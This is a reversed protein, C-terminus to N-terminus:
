SESSNNSKNIRAIEELCGKLDGDPEIVIGTKEFSGNDFVLLCAEPPRITVTYYYLSMKGSEEIIKKKEAYTCPLTKVETLASMEFRCQHVDSGSGKKKSVTFTLEDPLYDSVSKINETDSPEIIYTYSTIKKIIFFASLSLLLVAIIQVLARAKVYSQAGFYLLIVSTILLSISMVEAKRNIPRPTYRM